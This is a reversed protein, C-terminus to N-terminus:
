IELSFILGKKLVFPWAPVGSKTCLAVHAAQTVDHWQRQVRDGEPFFAIGNRMAPNCEFLVLRGLDEPRTSVAFDVGVYDLGFSSVTAKLESWLREPLHQEPDLIFETEMDLLWPHRAHVPDSTKKHVQYQNSVFLHIPFLQGNVFFARYKPYFFCNEARRDQFSVDIFEIVYLGNGRYLEEGLEEIDSGLLVM